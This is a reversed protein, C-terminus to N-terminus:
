QTIDRILNLFGTVAANASNSGQGKFRIRGWKAAPLSSDYVTKVSRITNTLNVIDSFGSQIVYDAALASDINSIVLTVLIDITSGSATLDLGLKIIDALLFRDSYVTTTSVPLVGEIGDIALVQAGNKRM